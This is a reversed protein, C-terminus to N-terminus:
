SVSGNKAKFLKIVKLGSPLNPFHGSNPVFVDYVDYFTAVTENKVKGRVVPLVGELNVFFRLGIEISFIQTSISTTKEMEM